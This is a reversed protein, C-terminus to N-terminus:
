IQLAVSFLYLTNADGEGLAPNNHSGAFMGARGDDRASQAPQAQLASILVCLSNIVDRDVHHGVFLGDLNKLSSM